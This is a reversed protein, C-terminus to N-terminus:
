HQRLPIIIKDYLKVTLYYAAPSLLFLKMRMKDGTAAVGSEYVTEIEKKESKLMEALKKAAAAMKREKFDVYYFLMRRYFHYGAKLELEKYGAQEFRKRQERWFPIEDQFRREAMGQNMISGERSVVYNYYPSDLFVCVKSSLLAHTTYLIDESKKGEPFKLDEVIDRRFLKSWVSNYIHYPKDDCIYTKLAEERSLIYQKGSFEGPQAGEGVQRYACICLEAGQEECAALMREYMDPEIWDDGDVYGIYAGEAAELGANRAASLGGNKRHIVQIEAHEAAYKDCIEPTTDTAGDDVVIIQIPRYTQALISDLCRPLYEEINYAAVIVSILKNGQM